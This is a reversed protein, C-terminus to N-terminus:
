LHRNVATGVWATAPLPMRRWVPGLRQPFGGGHGWDPAVPAYYRVMPEEIAGWKHKFQALGPKRDDPEGLDLSTAGAEIARHAAHWILFDNPRLQFARRDVGNFAYAVTAGSRVFLSGALVQGDCEALLLEVDDDFRQLLAEFFRYGRAPVLGHRMTSLYLRHWTRLDAPDARRLRVGVREAKRVAWTIRAHNRADHFRLKAPDAPLPIVFRGRWPSADLTPFLRDWQSALAKVQLRAGEDEARAVAAALLARAPGPGIAVPGGLPTRPLSSIRREGLSGGFGLPVGRTFLLPLVGALAGSSDECVLHHARAPQEDHLAGLWASRHYVTAGPQSVVFPDWRPDTLPDVTRVTLARAEIATM